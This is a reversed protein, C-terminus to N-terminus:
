PHPRREDELDDTSPPTPWADLEEDYVGDREIACKWCLFSGPAYSFARDTKPAIEAHCSVCETLEDSEERHM